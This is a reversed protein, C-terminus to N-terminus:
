NAESFSAEASLCQVCRKERVLALTAPVSKPAMVLVWGIEPQSTAATNAPLGM